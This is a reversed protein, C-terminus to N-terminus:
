FTESRIIDVEFKIFAKKEAAVRKFLRISIFPQPRWDLGWNMGIGFKFDQTTCGQVNLIILIWLDFDNMMIYLLEQWMGVCDNYMGYYALTKGDHYTIVRM